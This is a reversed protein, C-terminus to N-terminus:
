TPCRRRAGFLFSCIGLAALLWTSPEPIPRSGPVIGTTSLRRQWILFDAGDVAFDGNADGQGHTAGALTGMGARWPVLDDGDVHGDENFDAPDYIVAAAVSLKVGTPLYTTHWGLGGGLTPLSESAFAGLVSGAAVISFEDGASPQFGNVLSVALAGNLSLQGNVALVDYLTGATLGGLEITIMSSGTLSLNNDFMLLGVGDGPDVHGPMTVNGSLMGEGTLQSAVALSQAANLTLTAGSAVRLTGALPLNGTGSITLSGSQVDIGNLANGNNALTVSGGGQVVLGSVSIGQSGAFFYTASTNVTMASPAVAADVSVLHTAVSDTFTVSDGNRFVDAATGNHFNETTAVNWANGLSGTWTLQEASIAAATASVQYLQVDDQAGTIRAYYTGANLERVLSEGFGAGQSNATSGIQNFGTSDFLALSLDSLARTNYATQGGEVAGMQYTAGKPTLSLTVALPLDLTFSFFDVDSTGDISVFDVASAAVAVTDGLTGRTLTQSAVLSGLPTANSAADNGGSKELVDGYLRHLALVDDLQPGDITSSLAPAMLLVTPSTTFVHNVGLGHMAEHMLVNRFRRYNSSSIGLYSIQNTNIMMEAYDPFFNSALTPDAGGGSLPPYAKASLRMDGRVGLSGGGLFSTSSFAAGDDHPEYVYSLGSLASLRSFATDFIQFWPEQSYGTTPNWTSTGSARFNADLWGILSSNAGPIPTGDPAFSWTVTIPTGMSGASPNTATVVWRDSNVYAAAHAATLACLVLALSSFRLLRDGM